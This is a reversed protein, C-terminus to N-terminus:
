SCGSSRGRVSGGRPDPRARHREQGRLGYPARRLAELHAGEHLLSEAALWPSTCREPALLVTSPLPDGGSMSQLPGASERHTFGVMTVHGLVGAGAAPLLTALLEAGERLVARVSQRRISRPHRGATASRAM